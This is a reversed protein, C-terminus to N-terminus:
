KAAEIREVRLIGTKPSVSGTVKVQQGAFKEPTEQDSLKYATRGDWLVYRVGKVTRVCQRICDPDAGMNMTNHDKLCMSETIVGKYSGAFAILISFVFLAIFKTM